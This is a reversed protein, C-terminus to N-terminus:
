CYIGSRLEAPRWRVVYCTCYLDGVKSRSRLHLAEATMCLYLLQARQMLHELLLM